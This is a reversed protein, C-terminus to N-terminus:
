FQRSSPLNIPGIASAGERIEAESMITSFWLHHLSRYCVSTMVDTPQTRSIGNGRFIRWQCGFMLQDQQM